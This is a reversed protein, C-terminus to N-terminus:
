VLFSNENRMILHIETKGTLIFVGDGNFLLSVPLYDEKGPTGFDIVCSALMWFVGLTLLRFLIFM